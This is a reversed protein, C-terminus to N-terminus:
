LDLMSLLIDSGHIHHFHRQQLVQFKAFSFVMVVFNKIDTAAAESIAKAPQPVLGVLACIPVAVPATSPPTAPLATDPPLVSPVTPPAAAPANIPL